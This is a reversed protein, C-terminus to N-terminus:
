KSTQTKTGKRQGRPPRSSIEHYRSQYDDDNMQGDNHLKEIISLEVFDQRTMNHFSNCYASVLNYESVPIQPNPLRVYRQLKVAENSDKAGNFGINKNDTVDSKKANDINRSKMTKTTPEAQKEIAAVTNALEQFSSLAGGGQQMKKFKDNKVM